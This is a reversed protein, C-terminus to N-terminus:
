FMQLFKNWIKPGLTKLSKAGYTIINHHKVQIYNPRVNPHLKPTFIDKMFNQNLNNVTEFIEITLFRLQKIEMTLKGNKRLLIDYDSEYDDFVISLYRKQLKETKITWECTSFHLVFLCYNFTEYILSNVIAIEGPKGMYKQLRGLAKCTNCSTTITNDDAFNHQNKLAHFCTM